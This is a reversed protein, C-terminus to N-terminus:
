SFKIRNNQLDNQGAFYVQAPTNYDLSQHPRQYNYFEVFSTLQERAEKVTEYSKLYVEEYKVTRWFRESFINDFCRGKGDMSIKVQNGKLLDCWGNSTFQSGQDTNFIEPKSYGKLASKLTEICFDAELNTSLYSELVFRSYLDIIALFYTFGENIRVYTIDTAWVQNVREIKLDKLLYPYCQDNNNAKSLNGKFKPYIALLKMEQMLRQVKKHNIIIGQNNLFATIKRYGFFPYKLWIEHIKNALDQDSRSPIVKQYYYSSRNLNLLDFQNRLSLEVFNSDIM